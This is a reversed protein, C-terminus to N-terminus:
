CAWVVGAKKREELNHVIEQPIWNKKEKTLDNGGM